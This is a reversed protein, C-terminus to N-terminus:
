RKSLKAVFISKTTRKEKVPIENARTTAVYIQNILKNVEIQSKAKESMSHNLGTVLEKM